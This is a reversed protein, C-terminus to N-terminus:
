SNEEDSNDDGSDDDSSGEVDSSDTDDEASDDNSAAEEDSNDTDDDASDDESSGDEGSNDSNDEAVEPQTEDTDSSEGGFVSNVLGKGLGAATGLLGGEQEKQDLLNDAIEKGKEKGLNLLSDKLDGLEM